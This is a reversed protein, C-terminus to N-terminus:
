LANCSLIFRHERVREIDMMRQPARLLVTKQYLFLLSSFCAHHTKQKPSIGPVDQTETTCVRVSQFQRLNTLMKKKKVNGNTLLKCELITIFSALQYLLSQKEEVFCFTSFSLLLHGLNYRQLVASLDCQFVFSGYVTICTWLRM